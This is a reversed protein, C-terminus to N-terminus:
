DLVRVTVRAFLCGECLRGWEGWVGEGGVPQKGPDAHHHSWEAAAGHASSRQACAPGHLHGPRGSPARRGAPLHQRCAPGLPEAGADGAPAHLLPSAPSPVPPQQQERQRHRPPRDAPYRLLPLSYPQQGAPSPSCLAASHCRHKACPIPRSSHHCQRARPCQRQRRHLVAARVARAPLGSTNFHISPPNM